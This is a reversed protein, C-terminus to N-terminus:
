LSGRTQLRKSHRPKQRESHVQHLAYIVFYYTGGSEMYSFICTYVICECFFRIHMIINIFDVQYPRRGKRKAAGVGKRRQSRWIEAM